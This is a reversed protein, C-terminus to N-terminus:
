FIPIKYNWDIVEVALYIILTANLILTIDQIWTGWDSKNSSDFFWNMRCQRQIGQQEKLTTISLVLLIIDLLIITLKYLEM